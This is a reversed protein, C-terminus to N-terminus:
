RTFRILIQANWSKICKTKFRFFEMGNQMSSHCSKFSIIPKAGSGDTDMDVMSIVKNSTLHKGIHTYHLKM